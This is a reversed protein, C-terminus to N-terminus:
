RSGVKELVDVYYPNPTTSGNKSGPLDGDVEGDLSLMM